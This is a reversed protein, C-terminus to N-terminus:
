FGMLALKNIALEQVVVGAREKEEVTMTTLQRIPIVKTTYEKKTKGTISKKEEIINIKVKAKLQEYIRVLFSKEQLYYLHTEMSDELDAEPLIYREVLLQFKFPITNEDLLEQFTYKTGIYVTSIDQMCYKYDEYVTKSM